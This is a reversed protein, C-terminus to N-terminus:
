HNAILQKFENEDLVKVGLERAKQLKSGPNEGAVVFDTKKSVSSAVKGGLSEIVETAEQRTMETLTGTLVFTKDSLPLDRAEAPAQRRTNVGAEILRAIVRRNQVRSFFETVSEAIKPGIEPIATLEEISAEMLRELSLFRSALTKAAKEGVHRIGLGFILRWLDNEKSGAIAEHIKRASKEGMRELSALDEVTLRYLDAVDRVMERELLQDILAPGAGMIDMGNRSVFHLLNERLRAPCAINPCRRAAEGELRVVGTGCVPCIDPMRFVIEGGSRKEPLSRVIEPIVEGAKHVIVRDGIRIDRERIIDENHLSAKSVTTGALSVPTLLATPTLVGTRGVRIIIDEVTTEAQEAPFKYAVAWRPSKLTAGLQEQQALSDVKIVMGDIAYPLEFRKEEWEECYALAENLSTFRRIHENVHFGLEALWALVKAHTEPATGEHYGVGYVYIDLQRHATVKPDLQRLSGAAANRPNAFLPQGAEERRENLRAFSEKSMFVEGRVELLGPVPHRLRLPITRITKLNPSIDEGIEGDGRTAGRAFVGDEYQISVALGDVKLEVVYAVERGQLAAEVRRGFEALEGADFVNALSLMPVVHRITAFGERPKGGVRQSPSDPTVLEPWQEELAMLERMLADFEADTIEPDDLVYYRYNHYEILERLEDIRKKAQEVDM